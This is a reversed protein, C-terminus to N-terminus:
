LCRLVGTAISRDYTLRDSRQRARSTTSWSKYAENIRQRSDLSRSLCSRVILFSFRFSWRIGIRWIHMETMLRFLPVPSPISFLGTMVIIDISFVALILKVYHINDSVLNLCNWTGNLPKDQIAKSRRQYQVIRDSRWRTIKTLKDSVLDVFQRYRM